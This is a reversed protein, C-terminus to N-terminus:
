KEIVLESFEKGCLDKFHPQRSDPFAYEEIGQFCRISIVVHLQAIPQIIDEPDEAQLEDRLPLVEGILIEGHPYTNCGVEVIQKVLAPLM